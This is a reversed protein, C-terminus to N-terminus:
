VPRTPPPNPQFSGARIRQGTTTASDDSALWLFPRAWGDASKPTRKDARPTGFDVVNVRVGADRVEAALMQTLGEVGCKSALFAGWQPKTSASVASTVNVISGSGQRLMWPLVERCVLFTGTLNTAIVDRWPDVPYDAVPLRPGVVSAANILVDIRGFHRVVRHVLRIVEHEDRVDCTFAVAEKGRAQLDAHIPELTARHRDSFALPAGAEAFATVLRNGLKGSAGTVLVVKDHLSSPWSDLKSAMDSPGTSASTM